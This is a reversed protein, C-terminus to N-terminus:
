EFGNRYFNIFFLIIEQVSKKKIYINQILHPPYEGDTTKMFEEMKSSFPMIPEKTIPDATYYVDALSIHKYMDVIKEETVIVQKDNDDDDEM